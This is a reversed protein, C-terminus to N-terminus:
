KTRREDSTFDFGDYDHSCNTEQSMIVDSFAKDYCENCLRIKVENPETIIKNCDQCKNRGSLFEVRQALIDRDM